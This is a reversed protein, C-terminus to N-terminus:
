MGLVNKNDCSPTDYFLWPLHVGIVMTNHSKPDIHVCVCIKQGKTNDCAQLDGFTSSEYSIEQQKINFTVKGNQLIPNHEGGDGNITCTLDGTFGARSLFTAKSVGGNITLEVLNNGHEDNCVTSLQDYGVPAGPLPHPHKQSPSYATNNLQVSTPYWPKITIQISSAPVLAVHSGAKDIATFSITETAQTVIPLAKVTISCGANSSITCKWVTANDWLDQNSPKATVTIDSGSVYNDISFTIKDTGVPPPPPVAIGRVVSKAYMEPETSTITNSDAHIHITSSSQASSSPSNGGGCGTLLMGSLILICLWLNILLFM